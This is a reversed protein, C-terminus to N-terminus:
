NDEEEEDDDLLIRRRRGHQRSTDDESDSAHIVLKRPTVYSDRDFWKSSESEIDGDSDRESDPNAEEEESESEEDESSQSSSSQHKDDSSDDSMDDSMSFSSSSSLDGTKCSPSTRTGVNRHEAPIPSNSSELNRARCSTSSTSTGEDEVQHKLFVEHIYLSSYWRDFNAWDPWDVMLLPLKVLLVTNTAKDFLAREYYFDDKELEYCGNFFHGSGIPMFRRGEEREYQSYIKSWGIGFCKNFMIDLFTKDDELLRARWLGDYHLKEYKREYEDRPPPQCKPKQATFHILLTHERCYLVLSIKSVKYPKRKKDRKLEPYQEYILDMRAKEAKREEKLLQLKEENKWGIKPHADKKYKLLKLANQPSTKADSNIGTTIEKKKSPATQSLVSADDAAADNIGNSAIIASSPCIYSVQSFGMINSSRFDEVFAKM